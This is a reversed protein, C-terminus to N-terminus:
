RLSLPASNPHLKLQFYGSKLDLSTFYRKKGLMLLVNECNPIPYAPCKLIRNVRRLDTVFRLSNDKKRVVVAPSCYQSLSDAIIGQDKHAQLIKGTDARLAYPIPTESCKIVKNELLELRIPDVNAGTLECTDLAFSDTNALLIDHMESRQKDSIPTSEIKCADWIIALREHPDTPPRDSSEVPDSTAVNVSAVADKCLNM